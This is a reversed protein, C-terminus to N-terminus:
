QPNGFLPVFTLLDVVDVSNDSTLDCAANYSPDGLSLGFTEVFTLLDVVDVSEDGNFDGKLTGPIHTGIIEIQASVITAVPPSVLMGGGAFMMPESGIFLGVQDQGDLLFDYTAASFTLTFDTGGEAYEQATCAGNGMSASILSPITITGNYFTDYVAPQITGVLNLRIEQISQFRAGVDVPGGALCMLLYSIDDLSGEWAPDGYQTVLGPVPVVFTEAPAAATFLGGSLLCAVAIIASRM